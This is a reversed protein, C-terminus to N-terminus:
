DMSITKMSCDQSACMPILRNELLYNYIIKAILLNGRGNYHYGDDSYVDSCLASMYPYTNVFSFGLGSFTRNFESIVYDDARCQGDEKRFEDQIYVIFNPTGREKLAAQMRELSRTLCRGGIPNGPNINEVYHRTQSGSLKMHLYGLLKFHRYFFRSHQESSSFNIDCYIFPDLDYVNFFADGANVQIIVLDPDYKLVFRDLVYYEELTNVAPFGFNLVEHRGYGMNRDLLTELQYPFARERLPIGSEKGFGYAFSDGIVAIRFISDQRTLSHNRLSYSFIDQGRKMFCQLDDEVCWVGRLRFSILRFAAESLILFVVITLFLLLLNKWLGRREKM